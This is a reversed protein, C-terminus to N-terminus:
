CTTEVQEYHENNNNNNNNNMIRCNILNRYCNIPRTKPDTIKVNKTDFMVPSMCTKGDRTEGFSHYLLRFQESLLSVCSRIFRSAANGEVSSAAYKLFEEQQKLDVEATM